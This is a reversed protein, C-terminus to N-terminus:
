LVSKRASNYHEITRWEKEEELNIEASIYGFKDNLLLTLSDAKPNLIASYGGMHCNNSYGLNASLIYYQNFIAAGLIRRFNYKPSYRKAAAWIAVLIEAGNLNLNKATEFFVMDYCILIGIKGFRTNFPILKNGPRLFIENPHVHIKDYYELTNEVSDYYYARSRLENNVQELCGIIIAKKYKDAVEKVKSFKPTLNIWYISKCRALENKKLYSIESLKINDGHTSYEPFIFLKSTPNTIIAEEVQAIVDKESGLVIQCVTADFPEINNTSLGVIPILFVSFILLSYFVNIRM